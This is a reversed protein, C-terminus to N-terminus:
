SQLMHFCMHTTNAQSYGIHLQCANDAQAAAQSVISGNHIDQHQRASSAPLPGCYYIAVNSHGAVISRSVAEPRKRYKLIGRHLNGKTGRLLREVDCITSTITELRDNPVQLTKHTLM